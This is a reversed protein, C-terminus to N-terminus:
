GGLRSPATTYEITDARVVFSQLYHKTALYWFMPRLKTRVQLGLLGGNEVFGVHCAPERLLVNYLAEAAVQQTQYMVREAKTNVCRAQEASALETLM